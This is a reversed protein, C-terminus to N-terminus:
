RRTRRRPRKRLVAKMANIEQKVQARDKAHMAFVDELREIRVTNREIITLVAEFQRRTAFIQKASTRRPHTVKSARHAM